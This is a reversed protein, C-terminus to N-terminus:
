EDGYIKTYVELYKAIGSELSYFENAGEMMRSIDTPDPENIKRQYMENTFNTVVSGAKYKKVIYDTDGVGSNCVLPIGMAMIEGQKTPSSAKKSFTPRIFFISLDFISINLPVDRHLCSTIIVDKEDINKQRVIQYIREPKEGTVFVFKAAANKEKLQKFYDLMEPLMYWTGISGVYGLIFNSKDIKLRSKM